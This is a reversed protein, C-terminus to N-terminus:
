VGAMIYSVAFANGPGGGGGGSSAITISGDGNTITINSGATLTAKTLGGSANGVLLQGNTYTTQGTGGNAATVPTQLAVTAGAVTIGTGATIPANDALYVDTGDSWIFTNANQVALVTLLGGGNSALTVTFSGTTSNDVIWFGSVGTPFYITVNGSLTGNLLIRVNQCQTQTLTVNVNTLSVTHTGGFAKDIIDWDSNVPTNWDDIYDNYGPKELNKNPTFTSAM